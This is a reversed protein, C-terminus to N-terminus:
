SKLRYINQLKFTTDLHRKFKRILNKIMTEIQKGAYLIIYFITAINQQELTNNNTTNKQTELCRVIKNRVYCPYSNWSM